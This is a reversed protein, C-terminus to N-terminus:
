AAHRVLQNRLNVLAAVAGDAPQFKGGVHQHCRPLQVLAIQVLHHGEKVLVVEVAGPGDVLIVDGEHILPVGIATPVRTDPEGLLRTGGRPAHIYM